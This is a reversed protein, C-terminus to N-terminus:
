RLCVSSYVELLVPESNQRLHLLTCVLQTLTNCSTVDLGVCVVVRCTIARDEETQPSVGSLRWM